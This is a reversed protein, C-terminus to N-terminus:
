IIKQVYKERFFFDSSLLENKKLYIGVIKYTM